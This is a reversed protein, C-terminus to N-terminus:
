TYKIPLFILWQIRIILNDLTDSESMDLVGDRFLVDVAKVKM